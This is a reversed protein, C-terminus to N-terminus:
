PADDRWLTADNTEILRTIQPSADVVIARAIARAYATAAESAAELAKTLVMRADQMGDSESNLQLDETPLLPLQHLIGNLQREFNGIETKGARTNDYREYTANTRLERFQANTRELETTIKNFVMRQLPQVIQVANSSGYTLNAARVIDAYTPQKKEVHAM